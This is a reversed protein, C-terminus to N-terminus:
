LCTELYKQCGRQLREVSKMQWNGCISGFARYCIGKKRGKQVPSTFNRLCPLIWLCRFGQQVARNKLFVKEATGYRKRIKQVETRFRYTMDQLVVAQILVSALARDTRDMCNWVMAETVRVAPPAQHEITVEQCGQLIQVPPLMIEAGLIQRSKGEAQTQAEAEEAVEAAAEM